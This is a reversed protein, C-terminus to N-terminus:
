VRERAYEIERQEYEIKRKKMGKEREKRYGNKRVRQKKYERERECVKQIM